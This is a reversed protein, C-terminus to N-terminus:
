LEEGIADPPAESFGCRKAADLAQQADSLETRHADRTSADVEGGLGKAVARGAGGGSAEAGLMTGAGSKAAVAEAM